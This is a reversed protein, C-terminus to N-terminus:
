PTYYKKRLYQQDVYGGYDHPYAYGTGRGLKKSGPHHSNKLHDSVEITEDTSMDKLAAEIARYAANSTPAQAIYLTAQALPIRAEPMSVFENLRRPCMRFALPHNVSEQEFLDMRNHEGLYGSYQLM